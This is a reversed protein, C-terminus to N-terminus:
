NNPKNKWRAVLNNLNGAIYCSSINCAEPVTVNSKPDLPVIEQGSIRASRLRGNRFERLKNSTEADSGYSSHWVLNITIENM